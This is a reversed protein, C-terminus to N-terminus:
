FFCLIKVHNKITKQDTKPAMKAGKPCGFRGWISSLDTWSPKQFSINKLFRINVVLKLFWYFFLLFLGGPAVVFSGLDGWSPGLVTKNRNQKRMTKQMSKKYTKPGIKIGDPPGKPVWFRDNKADIKQHNNRTTGLDGWSRGLAGM